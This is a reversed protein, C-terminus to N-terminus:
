GLWSFSETIPPPKDDSDLIENISNQLDQGFVKGMEGWFERGGSTVLFGIALNQYAILVPTPIIGAKQAYMCKEYQTIWQSLVVWTKGKDDSNLCNYSVLANRITSLNEPQIIVEFYTMSQDILCRQETAKNIEISQKTQKALYFLTALIALFGFFESISGLEQITM